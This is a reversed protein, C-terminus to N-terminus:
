RKYGVLRVPHGPRIAPPGRRVEDARPGPDPMQQLADPLDLTCSNVPPFGANHDLLSGEKGLKEM